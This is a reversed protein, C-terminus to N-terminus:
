QKTRETLSRFWVDTAGILSFGLYARVKLQKGDASLTTQCRYTQGSRPDLVKGGIYRGEKKKFLGELIVLGIIPNNHQKGRCAVCRELSTAQGPYVKRIKGFYKGGSEWIHIITSPQKTEFDLTQWDGTIDLNGGAKALATNTLQFLGWLALFVM